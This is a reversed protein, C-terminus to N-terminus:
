ICVCVCLVDLFHTHITQGTTRGRVTAVNHVSQRRNLCSDCLCVYVVICAAVRAMCVYVCMCTIVCVCM